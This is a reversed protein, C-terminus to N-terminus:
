GPNTADSPFPPKERFPRIKSHCNKAKLNKFGSIRCNSLRLTHLLSGMFALSGESREPNRRAARVGRLRRLKSFFIRAEVSPAKWLVLEGRPDVPRPPHMPLNDQITRNASMEIATLKIAAKVPQLLLLGVVVVFKGVGALILREGALGTERSAPLAVWVKMAVGRFLLFVAMVVGTVNRELLVATKVMAVLPNAHAPVHSESVAGCIQV